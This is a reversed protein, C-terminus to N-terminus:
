LVETDFTFSVVAPISRVEGRSLEIDSLSNENTSQVPSRNSWDSEYELYITFDEGNVQYM